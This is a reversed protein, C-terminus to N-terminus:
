ISTVFVEMVMLYHHASMVPLFKKGINNVLKLFDVKVYAQADAKAAVYSDSTTIVISLSLLIRLAKKAPKIMQWGTM